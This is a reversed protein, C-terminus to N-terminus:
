EKENQAENEGGTMYDTLRNKKDTLLDCFRNMSYEAKSKKSKANKYHCDHTLYLIPVTCKMM